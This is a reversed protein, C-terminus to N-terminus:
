PWVETYTINGLAVARGPNNRLFAKAKINGARCEECDHAPQFEEVQAPDATVLWRTADFELEPAPRIITYQASVRSRALGDMWDIIARTEPTPPDATFARLVLETVNQPVAM